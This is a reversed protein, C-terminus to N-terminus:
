EDTRGIARAPVGAVITGAPVDRTVVAGAGVVSGKGISVGALVIAGAGIWVNDEIVIGASTHAPYDTAGYNTTSLGSDILMARASVIVHDGIRISHHGLIFVGRNIGCHRGITVNKPNAVHFNGLVGVRRGFICYGKIQLGVWCCARWIGLLQLFFQRM